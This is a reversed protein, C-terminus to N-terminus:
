LSTESLVESSSSRAVDLPDLQLEDVERLADDDLRLEESDETSLRAKQRITGGLVSSSLWLASYAEQPTRASYM